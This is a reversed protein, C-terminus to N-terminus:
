GAPLRAIETVLWGRHAVMWQDARAAAIEHREDSASTDVAPNRTFRWREEWSHETTDGALMQGTGDEIDEEAASISFRV